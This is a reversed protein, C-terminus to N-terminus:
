RGGVVEDAVRRELVSALVFDVVFRRERFAPTLRRSATGMVGRSTGPDVHFFSLNSIRRIELDVGTAFRVKLRRQRTISARSSRVSNNARHGEVNPKGNAM